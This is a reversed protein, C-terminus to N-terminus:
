NVKGEMNLKNETKSKLNFKEELLANLEIKRELYGESNLVYLEGEYYVLTINDALHGHLGGNVVLNHIQSLLIPDVSHPHLGDSVVLIIGPELIINDALQSHLGDNVLLNHVQSLLISDVSHSHLSDNVVLIVSVDLIINDALQNHLCEDVALQHVQSLVIPDVSHPHLAEAVALLHVQSLDINDALQGHLAESVSLIHVQTLDINDALHSHGAEQMVLTTDTTYVVELYPDESTGTQESTYCRAQNYGSVEIDETDHGERFGLLTYGTKNIWGIGTSNLSFGTYQGTTINTLDKREGVDIGETPNDVTGCQDFDGDILTTPSNQSTQVITIYAQADNDSDAIAFFYLYLTAASIIANDPLGSTDPPVFSRTIQYNGGGSYADAFTYTATAIAQGSSADHCADWTSGPDWLLVNGDGAGAYYNTTTDARVPYVTSPDNLWAKPLIKAQWFDGGRKEWFVKLKKRKEIPQSSDEIYAKKIHTREAKNLERITFGEESEYYSDDDWNQQADNARVNMTDPTSYKSILALVHNPNDPINLQNPVVIEKRFGSRRIAIEYNIGNGFADIWTFKNEVPDHTGMVNQATRISTRVHTTKHVWQISHPEFDITHDADEFKNKYRILPNAPDAFQKNIYLRYNAKEIQWYTGKDEVTYDVDQFDGQDDKYHIHGVHCRAINPLGVREFHKTNYNRLAVIEQMSLGIFFIFIFAWLRKM